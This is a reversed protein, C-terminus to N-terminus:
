IHTASEFGALRYEFAGNTRVVERTDYYCDCAGIFRGGVWGAVREMKYLSVISRIRIGIGHGLIKTTGLVSVMTHEDTMGEISITMGDYWIM